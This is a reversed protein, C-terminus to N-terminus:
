KEPKSNIRVAAEIQSVLKQAGQLKKETARLASEAASLEEKLATLLTQSERSIRNQLNHTSSLDKGVLDDVSFAFYNALKALIDFKPVRGNLYNSIASQSIGLDASVMEQTAGFEEMRARLNAAFIANTTNKPQSM